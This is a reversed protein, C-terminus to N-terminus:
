GRKRGPFFSSLGIALSILLCGIPLWDGFRSYITVGRKDLPVTTFLVGPENIPSGTLRGQLIAKPRGNADIVGSIGDNTVRVVPVRAEIARFGSIAITQVHVTDGLRGESTPNVLFDVGESTWRNVVRPTAIEFCIPSGFRYQRGDRATLVM